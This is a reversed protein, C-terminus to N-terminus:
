PRTYFNEPTVPVIPPGGTAPGLLEWVLGGGREVRRLVRRKTELERVKRWPCFPDRPCVYVLASPNSAGTFTPGDRKEVPLTWASPGCLAIPAGRGIARATRVGERLSSWWYDGETGNTRDGFPLPLFLLGSRQAGGLGGALVNFYTGEHPWYEVIPWALAGVGALAATGLLIPRLRPRLGSGARPLFRTPIEDLARQLLPVIEAVGLGALACLAPVYELFHRNADWFNSGPAALRAAGLGGGLLLLSVVAVRERGHRWSLAVGATAAVTVTPPTMFFIARVPYATFWRRDSSGNSLMFSVYGNLHAWWTAIGHGHHLWPWLVFFLPLGIYPISLAGAVMGVSPPKRRRYLLLYAVPAWVLLATLAFVANMKCALALGLFVGAWLLPGGRNELAGVGAAIVTLGSFQACPWDKPNSFAHAVGSPYFALAVTAAIGAIPGALRTMWRCFLWLSLGQLLVLGLHHGDTVDLWGLRDHFIASTVAAIFSPLVPYHMPDDRAPFRLFPTSFNPPEPGDLDLAGPAGPHLLWYLTRDGAYYLAPEDSTPGHRGLGAIGYVVWCAVIVLGLAHPSRLLRAVSSPSLRRHNLRSVERM